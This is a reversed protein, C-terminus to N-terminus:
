PDVILEDLDVYTGTSQPNHENLVRIEITHGGPGLQAFVRRSRWETDTAYENIRAAEHGDILVLAIGRNAARTCVYTISSGSFSARLSDGPVQSYTISHEFAEPFQRDHYWHGTYEIHPDLDDWNGPPLPFGAPVSPPTQRLRYLALRGTPAGDPETWNNFFTNILTPYESRSVPAIIHRVGLDTLMDAVQRSSGADLLQQWYPFTHWGDIYAQANLGAISESGFFAVAEAPYERNLRDILIREPASALIFAPIDRKRFLAFNRDNWGAAPLFWADLLTVAVMVAAAGPVKAILYIGLILSFMPLAPYMYRLNPAVVFLTIVSAGAIALLVLAPRNPRFALLVAGPLLLLFYQFGVAGGQGESFTGSHFTAVYPNRSALPALAYPDKFSTNADFDPSRFLGNYFPFVPNGSRAWSYIYTPAGLVCLCVAAAALTRFHRRELAFWTAILMAPLLYVGALVKVSLAGGFLVGALILEEPAATEAYRAIALAAGLVLAAWVNEVLLSGTVLQALPTAVFLAAILLPRAASREQRPALAEVWRQATNVVMAAILALLAFNVLHAAAEGGRAGALLYAATYAFDGGAPMLAWTYRLFDFSWRADHAVAMPLALHMSLADDGIEPKLAVLLHAFLLFVLLALASAEARSKCLFRFAGSRVPLTRERWSRVAWLYPIAMAVAYAGRTNVRFHLAVFIAFIWGALGVLIATPVDSRRTVITGLCFCAGLFYLAAAPSAPGCWWVIYATACGIAIVGIWRPAALLVIGAVAWYVGSFILFRELGTPTWLPLSFLHEHFFAYVTIASLAALASLAIKAGRPMATM